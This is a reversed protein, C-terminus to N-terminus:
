SQIDVTVLRHDSALGSIFPVNYVAYSGLKYAKLLNGSLLIHDLTGKYKSRKGKFTDIQADTNYFAHRMAPIFDRLWSLTRNVTRVAHKVKRRDTDSKVVTNLLLNSGLEVLENRGEELESVDLMGIKEFEELAKSSKEANFDGLVIVNADPEKELREKIYEAIKRAEAQRKLTARRGGIKSKLHVGYIYVKFRPSLEVLAEFPPRSFRYRHKGVKFSKGLVKFSKIPYKSIIALRHKPDTGKSSVEFYRYRESLGTRNLFGKLTNEDEVEQLLLVDPDATDITQAIAQLKLQARLSRSRIVRRTLNELNFTGIRM